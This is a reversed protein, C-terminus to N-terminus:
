ITASLSNMNKPVCIVNGQWDGNANGYGADLYLLYKRMDDRQHYFHGLSLSANIEKSWYKTKLQFSIMLTLVALM